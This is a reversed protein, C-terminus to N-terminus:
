SSHFHYCFRHFFAAAVGFTHTMTVASFLGATSNTVMITVHALLVLVLAPATSSANSIIITM